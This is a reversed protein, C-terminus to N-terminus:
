GSYASSDLPRAHSAELSVCVWNAFPQEKLADSNRKSSKSIRENKLWIYKTQKLEPEYKQEQTWTEDVAESGLKM